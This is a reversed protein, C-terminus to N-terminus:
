QPPLHKAGLDPWYTVEDDGSTEMDFYREAMQFHRYKQNDSTRM